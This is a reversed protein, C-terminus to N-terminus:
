ERLLDEAEEGADHHGRFPKAVRPLLLQVRPEVAEEVRRDCWRRSLLRLVDSARAHVGHIFRRGVVGETDTQRLHTCVRAMKDEAENAKRM